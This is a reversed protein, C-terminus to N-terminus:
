YTVLFANLDKSVKIKPIGANAIGPINLLTDSIKKEMRLNVLSCGLKRIESWM